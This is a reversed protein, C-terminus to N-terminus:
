VAGRLWNVMSFPNTVMSSIPNNYVSTGGRMKGDKKNKQRKKSDGGVMQRAAIQNAPDNPDVEVNRLPIVNTGGRQKQFTVRRTHMRKKMKRCNKRSKAM